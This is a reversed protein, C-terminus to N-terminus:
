TPSLFMVDKASEIIQSQSENISHSPALMLAVAIEPRLFSWGMFSFNNAHFYNIPM